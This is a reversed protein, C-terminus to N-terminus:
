NTRISSLYQERTVVHATHSFFHCRNLYSVNGRLMVLRAMSCMCFRLSEVAWENYDVVAIRGKKGTIYLGVLRKIAGVGGCVVAVFVRWWKRV